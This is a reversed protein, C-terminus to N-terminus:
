TWMEKSRPDAGDAPAKTIALWLLLAGALGSLVVRGLHSSEMLYGAWYPYFRLAASGVWYILGVGILVTGVVLFLCLGCKDLWLQVVIVALLGSALSPLETLAPKM